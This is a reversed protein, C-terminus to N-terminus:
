MRCHPAEGRAFGVAVEYLHRSDVETELMPKLHEATMGSPGAAAGRRASHVCEKFKTFDLDLPVEPQLEAIHNPVAARPHPPRRSSDQLLDLTQQTGPAVVAAELAQRGASLEGMQVLSLARNARREVDEVQQRRRRRRSSVQGSAAVVMSEEVLSSWEGARFKNVREILRERPVLGGRPPRFLLMRPFLLFLKWGQTDLEVNNVMRGQVMTKCALRMVNKLCSRMFPPASKMIIPRMMFVEKLDVEDLSQLGVSINRAHMEAHVPDEVPAILSRRRKNRASLLAMERVNRTMMTRTTTRIM